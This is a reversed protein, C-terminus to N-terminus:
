DVRSFQTELSAADRAVIKKEKKKAAPSPRPFVSQPMLHGAVVDYKGRRFAAQGRNLHLASFDQHLAAL